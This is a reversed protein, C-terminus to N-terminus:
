FRFLVNMVKDVLYGFFLFGVAGLILIAAVEM